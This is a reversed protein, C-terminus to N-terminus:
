KAPSKHIESLGRDAAQYSDDPQCPVPRTQSIELQERLPEFKERATNAPAIQSDALFSAASYTHRV